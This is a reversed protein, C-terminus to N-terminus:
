KGYVKQAFARQRDLKRDRRQNDVYMKRRYKWQEAMSCEIIESPKGETRRRSFQMRHALIVRENNCRFRKLGSGLLKGPVMLGDQCLRLIDEYKSGKWRNLWYEAPAWSDRPLMRSAPLMHFHLNDDIDYVVEGERFPRLYSPPFVNEGGDTPVDDLTPPKERIEGMPVVGLRTNIFTATEMRKHPSRKVGKSYVSRGDIILKTSM